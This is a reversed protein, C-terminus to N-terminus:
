RAPRAPFPRPATGAPFPTAPLPSVPRRVDRDHDDPPTAGTSTTGPQSPATFTYITTAPGTVIEGKFIATAASPDTYVAVNHPVGADLHNFAITVQAGVPVTITSASLRHEPGHATDDGREPGDGHRDRCGDHGAAYAHCERAPHHHMRLLLVRACSRPRAAGGHTSRIEHPSRRHSCISLCRVERLKPICLRCRRRRVRADALRTSEGRRSQSPGKRHPSPFGCGLM